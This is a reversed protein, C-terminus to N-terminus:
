LIGIPKIYKTRLTTFTVLVGWIRRLRPFVDCLKKNPVPKPPFEAIQNEICIHELM